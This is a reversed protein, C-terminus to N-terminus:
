QIVYSASGIIREAFEDHLPDERCIGNVFDMCIDALLMWEEKTLILSSWLPEPM